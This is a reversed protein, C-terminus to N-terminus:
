LPPPPLHPPPPPRPPPPSHSLHTVWSPRLAPHDILFTGSFGAAPRVLLPHAADALIEPRRGNGRSVGPIMNLADTGILTRPWLANVAVGQPSFEGALGLAVFIMGM